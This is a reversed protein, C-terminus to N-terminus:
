TAAPTPLLFKKMIPRPVARSRCNWFTFALYWVAQLVIETGALKDINSTSRAYLMLFGMEKVERDLRLKGM